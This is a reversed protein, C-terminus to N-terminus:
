KIEKNIKEIKIYFVIALIVICIILFAIGDEVGTYPIDEEITNTTNVFSSIENNTNEINNVTNNNSTNNSTNSIIPVISGNSATNAKNATNATNASNGDGTGVTITTSIDQASIDTESNSAMINTFQVIGEKGSVDAKTKLTVNFVSEESKVFTTKTLTIRGTDSAYTCNWSNIGEISSESISEFVDKDYKLYGSLSNIGNSGVDLNSVKVTVTFETSEAVTTTNTEMTATFSLANVITACTLVLMIMIIVIKLFKKKM